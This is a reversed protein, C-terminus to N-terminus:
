VLSFSISGVTQRITIFINIKGNLGLKIEAVSTEFWFSHSRYLENAENEVSFVGSSIM